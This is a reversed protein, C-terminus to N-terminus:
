YCTRYAGKGYCSRGTGYNYYAGTNQRYTWYNNSADYGKMNGDPNITTRWQSGTATNWGNVTVSGDYNQTTRYSNGNRWDYTYSSQAHASVTTLLLAGALFLLQRM